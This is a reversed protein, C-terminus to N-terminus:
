RSVSKVRHETTAITSKSCTFASQSYHQDSAYVRSGTADLIFVRFLTLKQQLARWQQHKCPTRVASKENIGQLKASLFGSLLQMFFM